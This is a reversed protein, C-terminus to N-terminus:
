PVRADAVEVRLRWLGVILERGSIRSIRSIENALACVVILATLM